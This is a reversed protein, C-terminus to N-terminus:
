NGGRKERRLLRRCSFRHSDGELSVGGIPFWESELWESRDFRPFSVDGEFDGDVESLLMGDARDLFAEYITAGGIVCVESMLSSDRRAVSLAEDPSSARVAGSGSWSDDRTVVVNLRGALPPSTLSDWTKRGMVVARGMTAARFVRFDGPLRWSPLGGKRVSSARRAGDGCDAM